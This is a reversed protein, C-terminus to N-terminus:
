VGCSTCRPAVDDNSFAVSFTPGGCNACGFPEFQKLVANWFVTHVKRARKRFVLLDVALTPIETCVLVVPVLEATMAYRQDLETLKRRLELEVARGKAALEEPDAQRSGGRGRKGASEKLLAGYYGRLRKRDRELRGDMRDFFGTTMDRLQARGRLVAQPLTREADVQAASWPELQWLRLPDTLPVEVGSAANLTVAFQGEWREESSVTAHFWWTHYVTRGARVDDIQVKANLWTFARAVAQDMKGRKLYLDPISLAVVKPVAALLHDAQELFDGALNVHLGGSGSACSVAVCEEATGISEAMQPTLIATGDEDPGPWDVLGGRRELLTTAFAHLDERITATM